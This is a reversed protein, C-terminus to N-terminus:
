FPIDNDDFDIEPIRQGNNEVIAESKTAFFYKKEFETEIGLLPYVKNVEQLMELSHEKLCNANNKGKLQVIDFLNEEKSYDQKEANEIPQVINRNSVPTLELTMRKREIKNNFAIIISQGNKVSYTYGGVCHRMASGEEKLELGTILEKISYKENDIDLLRDKLLESEITSAHTLQKRLTEYDFHLPTLYRRNLFGYTFVGFEEVLKDLTENVQEVQEISTFNEYFSQLEGHEKAKKAFSKLAQVNINQFKNLNVFNRRLLYGIILKKNGNDLSMLDETPLNKNIIHVTSMKTKKMAKYTLPLSYITSFTDSSHDNNFKSFSEQEYEKLDFIMSETKRIYEKAFRLDGKYPNMNKLNNLFCNKSKELYNDKVTITNLTSAENLENLWYVENDEKEESYLTVLKKLDFETLDEQVLNFQNLHKKGFGLAMKHICHSNTNIYPELYINRDRLDHLKMSSNIGNSGVNEYLSEIYVKETLVTRKYGVMFSLLEHYSGIMNSVLMKEEELNIFSGIEENKRILRILSHLPTNYKIIEMQKTYLFLAFAETFYLKKSILDIAVQTCNIDFSDIIDYILSSRSYSTTVYGNTIFIKNLMKFNTTGLIQYKKGTSIKLAGYDNYMYLENMGVTILDMTSQKENFFDRVKKPLLSNNNVGRHPYENYVYFIDLDNVVPNLDLKLFKFIMSSVAQGALIGRNPLEQINSLEKLIFDVLKQNQLQTLISNLKM